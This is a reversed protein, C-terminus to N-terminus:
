HYPYPKTSKTDAKIENQLFFSKKSAPGMFDPHRNLLNIHQYFIRWPHHRQVGYKELFQSPKPIIEIRGVFRELSKLGTM